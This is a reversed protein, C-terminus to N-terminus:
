EGLSEIYATIDEIIDIDDRGIAEETAAIQEEFTAPMINPSFGEVIQANPEVISSHIYELDVIVTSGDALTEETGYIGQWSPGALPTGDASHCGV